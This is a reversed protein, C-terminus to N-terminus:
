DSLQDNYDTEPLSTIDREKFEWLANDSFCDDCVQHSKTMKPRYSAMSRLGSGDGSLQGCRQCLEKIM